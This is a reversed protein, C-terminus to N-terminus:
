LCSTQEHLRLHSTHLIVRHLARTNNKLRLESNYCLFTDRNGAGYWVIRDRCECHYTVTMNCHCLPIGTILQHRTIQFSVSDPCQCIRFDALLITEGLSKHQTIKLDSWRTRHAKEFLISIEMQRSWRVHHRATRQNLSRDGHPGSMLKGDLEAQESSMFPWLQMWGRVVHSTQGHYPYM